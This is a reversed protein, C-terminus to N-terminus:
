AAKRWARLLASRARPNRSIEETSPRRPKKFLSSGESERGCACVPLGPPCVCDQSWDRFAKKVARDELSHYSIVAVVGGAHLAEKIKPLVAVLAPLEQNLEIRLAQFVRAMERPHPGRNLTRTLAAALDDSTGFPRATRRRVIERALRASGPVEGYEKFVRALEREETENLLDAATTDGDGMRMDLPLARRFAFGRHDSDLQWSSVGLDLLAGQLGEKKLQADDMARDFRMNLIRVRDAFPKLRITAVEIAEPDQDVGVLRCEPWRELMAVAHGGGGLTGDLITGDRAVGLIELIENVM